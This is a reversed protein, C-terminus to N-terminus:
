LVVSGGKGITYKIISEQLNRNKMFAEAALVQVQISSMSGVEKKVM